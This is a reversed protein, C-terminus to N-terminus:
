SECWANEKRIEDEEEPTFDNAINFMNRIEEPTKGKMMLAVRKCADDLLGPIDLYNAAMIIEFLMRHEVKFYDDVWEEMQRPTSGDQGQSKHQECWALVKRFVESTVNPIPIPTDDDQINLDELMTTILKSMGIVPAAVECIVQDKTHVKFIRDAAPKASGSENRGESTM